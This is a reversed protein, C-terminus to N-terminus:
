VREFVKEFTDTWLLHEVVEMPVLPVFRAGLSEECTGLVTVLCRCHGAPASQLLSAPSGRFLEGGARPKVVSTVHLTINCM